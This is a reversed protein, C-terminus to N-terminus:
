KNNENIFILKTELYYIRSVKMKIEIDLGTITTGM